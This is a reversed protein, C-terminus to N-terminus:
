FAGRLNMWRHTGQGGRGWVGFIVLTLQSEGGTTESFEWILLTSENQSM